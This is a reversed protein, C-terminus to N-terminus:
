VQPRSRASAFRCTSIRSNRNSAIPRFRPMDHCRHLNGGFLPCERRLSLDGLIECRQADVVLAPREGLTGRRIRWRVRHKGGIRGFDVLQLRAAAVHRGVDDVDRRGRRIELGHERLEAGLMPMVLVLDAEDDAAPPQEVNMGALTRDDRDFDLGAVQNPHRAPGPVPEIQAGIAVDARDPQELVLRAPRRM